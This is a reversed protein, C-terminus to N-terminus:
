PQAVQLTLQKAVSCHDVVCSSIFQLHLLVHAFLHLVVVWFCCAVVVVSLLLFVVVHISVDARDFNTHPKGVHWLCVPRGCVVVWLCLSQSGFPSRTGVPGVDVVQNVAVVVM